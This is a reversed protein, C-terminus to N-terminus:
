YKVECEVSYGAKLRALDDATNEELSIRVTLRQEVKVFNGTANDVPLLSFASGTADSLSAVRGKYSVDPVADVHIAVEAGDQIHPLQSERFNAEVWKQKEDVISVLTQGPNVLEGINIDRAGVVGSHTAIIYCYSLNLSALDVAARALEVAAETASRNHGQEDAMSRQMDITHCIQEYRAQAALYATHTQEYVQQSVSGTRLLQEYRFDERELNDMNAKAEAKSAETASITSTATQVSSEAQKSQQEARALDSRAQALRLRYESDEIVVLTDGEHVHQYAEFRIERIFGQVRTNQPAIYQCVRANDTYEIRGFHTFQLVVYTIGSLLLLVIITNYLYMFLRSKQM